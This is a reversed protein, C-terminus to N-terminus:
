DILSAESSVTPAYMPIRPAPRGYNTHDFEFLVLIDDPVPPTSEDPPRLKARLYRDYLPVSWQTSDNFVRGRVDPLM